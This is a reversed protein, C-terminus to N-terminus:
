HKLHFVFHTNTCWHTPKIAWKMYLTHLIFLPCKLKKKKLQLVNKNFDSFNCSAHSQM